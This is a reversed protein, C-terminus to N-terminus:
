KTLTLGLMLLAWVVWGNMWGGKSPLNPCVHFCLTVAPELVQGDRTACCTVQTLHVQHPTCVFCYMCVHVCTGQELQQGRGDNGKVATWDGHEPVPCRLPWSSHRTLQRVTSRVGYEMSTCYQVICRGSQLLAETRETGAWQGSDVRGSSM